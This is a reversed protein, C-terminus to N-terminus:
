VRGHQIEVCSVLDKLGKEVNMTLFSSMCLDVIGRIISNKKLAHKFFAKQWIHTVTQPLNTGFSPPMPTLPM